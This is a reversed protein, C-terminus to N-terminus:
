EIVRGVIGDIRGVDLQDFITKEPEGTMKAAAAKGAETLRVVM